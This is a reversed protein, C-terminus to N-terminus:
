ELRHSETSKPQEQTLRRIEDEHENAFYGFYNERPMQWTSVPKNANLYRLNVARTVEYGLNYLTALVGINKAVDVKALRSYAYVSRALTACIIHISPEVESVLKQVAPMDDLTVKPIRGRSVRAVDDSSTLARLLSIQGPGFTVGVPFFAVKPSVKQVFPDENPSLDLYDSKNWARRTGRAIHLSSDWVSAMCIWSWYDSRQPQCANLQAMKLYSKLEDAGSYFSKSPIFAAMNQLKMEYDNNFTMETLMVALVAAPDVEYLRAIDTVMTLLRKDSSFTNLRDVFRSNAKPLIEVLSDSKAFFRVRTKAPIKLDADVLHGPGIAASVKPIPEASDVMLRRGDAQFLGTFREEARSLTSFASAFVFITLSFLRLMFAEM